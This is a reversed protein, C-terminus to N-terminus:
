KTAANRLAKDKRQREELEHKAKEASPINGDRLHKSDARLSSDSKLLGSTPRSWEPKPMDVTWWLEPKKDNNMFAIFEVWSGFGEAVVVQAQKSVKASQSSNLAKQIIQITLADNTQPAKM